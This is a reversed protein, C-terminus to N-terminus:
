SGDGHITPIPAIQQNKRHRAALPSFQISPRRRWLGCEHRIPSKRRSGEGMSLVPFAGGQRRDAFFFKKFCPLPACAALRGGAVWPLDVWSM